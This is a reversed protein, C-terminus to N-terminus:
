TLAMKMTYHMLTTCQPVYLMCKRDGIIQLVCTPNDYIGDMSSEGGAMKVSSQQTTWQHNM